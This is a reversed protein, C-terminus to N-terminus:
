GACGDARPCRRRGCAPGRAPRGRPCRPPPARRRAPRRSRARSGPTTARRRRGGRRRRSRPRGSSGDGSPCPSRCRPRGRAPAACWASPRAATRSARTPRPGRIAWPRPRPSRGSPRWRRDEPAVPEPSGPVDVVAPALGDLAGRQRDLPEGVHRGARRHGRCGRRKRLRGAALPVPVVAECPHAVGRERELRQVPELEVPLGVLEHLEDGVELGIRVPRELDHVPDVAPPVEGLLREVLERAVGARARHPDAVAGEVLALVVDEARHEVRDQEMRAGALAHRPPQPRDDLRLRLACSLDPAVGVLPDPLGPSLGLVVHGRLEHAPHGEVARRLEGLDAALRRKLLRPARGRLLDPLVDELVADAVADHALVVVGVREVRRRQQRRDEAEQRAVVVAQALGDVRDRVVQGLVAEDKAVLGVLGVVAQRALLAAEQDAGEPEDGRQRDDALQLAGAVQHLAQQADRRREAEVGLLEVRAGAPVEAVERLGERVEGEDLGRRSDDESFSERLQRSHARIVHDHDPAAGAAAREYVM